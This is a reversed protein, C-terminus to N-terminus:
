PAAVRAKTSRATEARQDSPSVGPAVGSGGLASGDRPLTRGGADLPGGGGALTAGGALVGGLGSVDDADGARGEAM